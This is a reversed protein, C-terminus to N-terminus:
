SPSATCTTGANGVLLCTGGTPTTTAPTVVTNLVRGNAANGPNTPAPTKPADTLSNSRYVIQYLVSGDLRQATPATQQWVLEPQLGAVQTQSLLPSALLMVGLFVLIVVYCQLDMTADM